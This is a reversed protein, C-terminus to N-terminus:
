IKGLFDIQTPSLDNVAAIFLSWNKGVKPSELGNVRQLLM